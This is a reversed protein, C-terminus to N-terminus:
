EPEVDSLEKMEFGAEKMNDWYDPYSKTVAEVGRIILGPVFVSVPAFAMVIRHDDHSDIVPLETIPVRKGEWLLVDHGETELIIGLKLCESQLAAIRDCEKYRLTSVGSFRFPIGLVAASVALTPVLDPTGSMDADLRSHQEPSASLELSDENEESPSTVVGLREGYLRIQSDGQCSEESIDDITIWGATLAVVEYWTAAASWDREVKKIARTYKKNEVKLGDFILEPENGAQTMMLATMKIYPLSVPEGDFKLVLPTRLLPAIMMLASVYQSSISSDILIEGGSLTSGTIKLPPFGEKNLYEINAGMQRLAEVLVGIPRALMNKNGTIIVEADPLAAYYATLFRMATGSNGTNIEGKTIKLTDSLVKVDDCDSLQLANEFGGVSNIVLARASMSKSLPVSVTAETIEEPPFIHFDM